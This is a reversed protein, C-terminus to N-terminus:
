NEWLKACDPCRRSVRRDGVTVTEWGESCRTGGCTPRVVFGRLTLRKDGEPVYDYRADDFWMAWDEPPSEQRALAAKGAIRQAALEISEHEAQAKVRISEHLAELIAPIAPIALMGLVGRALLDLEEFEARRNKEVAESAPIEPYRGQYKPFADQLTHTNEVTEIEVSSSSGKSSSSPIVEEIENGSHEGFENGSDIRPVSSNVTQKGNRKYRNYHKSTNDEGRENRCGLCQCDPFPDAPHPPNDSHGPRDIRQHKLFKPLWIFPEDDVKYLRIVGVKALEKIWGEVHKAVINHDSPFIENKLRRPSYQKRGCDDCFSWLGIFLLRAEPSVEGLKEDSFFEPKLTRYRAM